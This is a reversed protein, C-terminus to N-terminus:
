SLGGNFVSSTSPPAGSQCDVIDPILLPGIVKVSAGRVDLDLLHPLLPPRLLRPVCCGLSGVVLAGAGGGGTWWACSCFPNSHPPGLLDRMGVVVAYWWVRSLRLYLRYINGVARAEETLARQMRTPKAQIRARWPARDLCPCDRWHVLFQWLQTGLYYYLGM